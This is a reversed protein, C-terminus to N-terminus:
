ALIEYLEFLNEKVVYGCAGAEWAAQRLIDDDYNTVIVVRAEPFENTIQQTAKIGDVNKMEIDMLVWDPSLRGYEAAAEGGDGCEGVIEAVGALTVKLLERVDRSDDVILVRIM